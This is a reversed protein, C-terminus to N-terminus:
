VIWHSIWNFMCILHTNACSFVHVPPNLIRLFVKFIRSLKSGKLFQITLLFDCFRPMWLAAMFHIMYSHFLLDLRQICALWNLLNWAAIINRLFNSLLLFLSYVHCLNAWLITYTLDRKISQLDIFVYVICSSILHCPIPLLLIYNFSSSTTCSNFTTCLLSPKLLLCKLRIDILPHPCGISNIEGTFFFSSELRTLYCWSRICPIGMLVCAEVIAHSAFYPWVFFNVATSKRYFTVYRTISCYIVEFPLSIVIKPSLFFLLLSLYRDINM